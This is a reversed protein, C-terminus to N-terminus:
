DTRHTASDPDKVAMHRNKNETEFQFDWGLSDFVKALFKKSNLHQMYGLYSVVSEIKANGTAFNWFANRANKRIRKGPIIYGPFMTSGTFNVGNKLNTLTRKNPHLALGLGDLFFEIKKIDSLLKQKEDLKVLIYFDDVYRGYHKYGLGFRIYRDLQDLYINSLLQSTLNGIVIGRGKPQNFLSKENPLSQWDKINGVIKVNKTPDDFITVEWLYRLIWYLDGKYDKFQRDLGWIARKYLQKRDLSAFYNKIDLKAVFVEASYNNSVARAHHQFRKQSYLTGKNKRCSYSDEIFHKGWWPEVQNYIFRHVIRDRFPAAFIERAVPDHIVFAKSPSPMYTREQIDEALLLISEVDNLEFLHEDRTKRKGTRTDLYAKYLEQNIFKNLSTKM